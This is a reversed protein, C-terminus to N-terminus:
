IAIEVESTQLECNTIKILLKGNEITNIETLCTDQKPNYIVEYEQTELNLKFVKGAGYIASTSIILHKKNPLWSFSTVDSGWEDDQWFRKALRYPGRLPAGLDELFIAINTGLADDCFAYIAFQGNKQVHAGEKCYKPSIQTVPIEESFVSNTVFLSILILIYKM